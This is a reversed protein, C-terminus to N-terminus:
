IVETSSIVSRYSSEGAEYFVLSGENAKEAEHHM